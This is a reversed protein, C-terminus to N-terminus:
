SDEKSRSLAVLSLGRALRDAINHLPHTKSKVEIVRVALRRHFAERLLLFAEDPVWRPVEVRRSTRGSLVRRAMNRADLNDSLVDVLHGDPYLQLAHAIALLELGSVGSSAYDAIGRRSWGADTVFGWGAHEDSDRRSADAAVLSGNGRLRDPLALKRAQQRLMPEEPWAQAASPGFVDRPEPVDDREGLVALAAERALTRTSEAGRHLLDCTCDVRWLWAGSVAGGVLVRPSHRGLLHRYGRRAAAFPRSSV